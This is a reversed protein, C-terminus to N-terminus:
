TRMEKAASLIMERSETTSLAMAALEEHTRRYRAVLKQEVFVAGALSDSWAADTLLNSLEFVQFSGALGAHAGIEHPLVRIEVMPRNAMEALHELQARMVGAGGVPRYLVDQELLVSLRPPKSRDLIRQRAMRYDLGRYCLDDDEDTVAPIAAEAFERTQLLGPPLLADYSRIVKSREELWPFDLFWIPLVDAYDDWWGKAFVDRAFRDLADILEPDTVGYLRLLEHLDPTRIPLVGAEMRSMNSLDRQIHAGAALLTMRAQERYERLLRGLLQARLSPTRKPPM